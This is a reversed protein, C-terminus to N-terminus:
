WTFAIPIGGVTHNVVEHSSLYAVSYAVSEEGVSVGIVPSFKGVQDQVEDAAIHVPDFIAPILDRPGNRFLSATQGDALTVASARPPSVTTCSQTNLPHRHHLVFLSGTPKRGV